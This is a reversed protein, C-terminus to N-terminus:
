KILLMKKTLLVDYFVVQCLYAGSAVSQGGNSKGDWVFSHTGPALFSSQLTRVLQGRIDFIRIDVNGPKPINFEITTSPNFPNPYNQLLTFARIANASTENGISTLNSFTLKQIDQLLISTASGGKVQINMYSPASPTSFSWTASWSSASEENAAKVRWYYTTGYDLDGLVWYVATTSTDIISSSFSASTSVQVAYSTAGASANWSLTTSTFPIAESNSPSALTPASPANSLTTASITSSNDSTGSANYARVRYYYTTNATLGSVSRSTIDGVDLNQYGSIYSTFSSSTSVDLRYGSAGTASSWNATFSAHDINTAATASPATPATPPPSPLSFSFQVVTCTTSCSSPPRVGATVTQSGLDFTFVFGAAVNYICTTTWTATCTSPNILMGSPSSLSTELRSSGCANHIVCSVSVIRTGDGNFQFSLSDAGSVADVTLGAVAGCTGATFMGRSFELSSKGDNADPEIFSYERGDANVYTRKYRNGKTGTELTQAPAVLSGAICFIVSFIFFNRTPEHM